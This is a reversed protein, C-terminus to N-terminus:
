REFMRKSQRDLMDFIREYEEEQLSADGRNPTITSAFGFSSLYSISSLHLMFLRCSLWIHRGGGDRKMQKAKNNRNKNSPTM